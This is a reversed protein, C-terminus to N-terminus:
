HEKEPAYWDGDGNDSIAILVDDRKLGLGVLREVVRRAGHQKLEASYGTYALIQIFVIDSRDANPYTRSYVLDGDPHVTFIQFLDEAPMEWGEVLGAHIAASIDARRDRLHEHVDIRVLPM